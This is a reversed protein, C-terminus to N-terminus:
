RCAPPWARDPAPVLDVLFMEGSRAGDRQAFLLRDATPSLLPGVQFQDKLAAVEGAAVWRDGERRYRYLHSRGTRDAVVVLHRGDRSIEAEYEFAPTNVPPGLNAVSWRGAGDRTAVYIDGEGEGGPRHSGFYLRGADDLRPLLESAKSNVPEPLREPLGWRGDPTRDVVYIDFDEGTPDHRTSIFYLRRGDRTLFPDADLAPEPAAFPVPRPASWAGKECRTEALRFKRFAADAQLFIMTRGDPSFTPTAEYQPSSVAPPTWRVPAPAAGGIAVAGLVAACAARASASTFM